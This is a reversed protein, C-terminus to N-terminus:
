DIPQVNHTERKSDRALREQLVYARRCQSNLDMVSFHSGSPINWRLRRFRDVDDVVTNDTCMSHGEEGDSSM